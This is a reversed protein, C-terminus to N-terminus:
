IGPVLEVATIQPQKIKEQRPDANHLRIHNHALYKATEYGSARVCFSLVEHTNKETVFSIELNFYFYKM